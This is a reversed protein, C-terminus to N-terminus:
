NFRLPLEACHGGEGLLGLPVKQLLAPNVHWDPTLKTDDKEPDYM